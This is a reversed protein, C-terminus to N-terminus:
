KGEGGLFRKGLSSKLYEDKTCFVYSDHTLHLIESAYDLIATKDHSVMVVTINEKQNLEQIIKYFQETIIPDLGAAPEDLILLKDTSCLARALLVRQQQGGSLNHYCTNKITEIGLRKLAALARKKHIPKYFPIIGLDNHCGSLVIEFVSAPFDRQVDTQQPLYGIEKSKLGDAYEVYGSVPAILGLLAKTLTSKGSGNEGIICIYDGKNVQFSLDNVVETGNYALSINKVSILSM